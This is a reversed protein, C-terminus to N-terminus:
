RDDLLGTRVLEHAVDVLKVNRHQSVQVLLEFAQQATVKHREMLVGKAQGILDRSAMARHAGELRLADAVAVAAHAALVLGVQESEDDFADVERSVLNLAGLDDGTVFLQLCLAGHLGAEAARPALLPWRPDTALDGVRVTAQEFAADLCPGQGVDEQLQDMVRPMEGSAGESTVTRRGHVLSVSGEQTGPVLAVAARVLGALVDESGAADQLERAMRVLQQALDEGALSGGGQQPSPRGRGDARPSPTGGSRPELGPGSPTDHTM